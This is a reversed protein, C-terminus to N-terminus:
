SPVSVIFGAWLIEFSLNIFVEPEQPDLISKWRDNLRYAHLEHLTQRSLGASWYNDVVDEIVDLVRESVEKPWPIRDVMFHDLVDDVAEHGAM